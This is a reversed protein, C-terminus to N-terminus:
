WNWGKYPKKINSVVDIAEWAEDYFIHISERSMKELVDAACEPSFDSGLCRKLFYKFYNIKDSNRRYFSSKEQIEFSPESDLIIQWCEDFQNEKSLELYVDKLSSVIKASEMQDKEQFAVKLSPGREWDSTSVPSQNWNRIWYLEKLYETKGGALFILLSLADTSIMESKGVESLYHLFIESRCLSNTLFAPMKSREWSSHRQIRELVSDANNRFGLSAKYPFSGALRPGYRWVGLSVGGVSAYDSNQNLFDVMLSLSSPLYLEDDSILVSYKTAISKAALIHRKYISESTHFYKCHNFREINPIPKTSQDLVLTNIGYREWFPLTKDLCHQRERSFIVVTLDLLNNQTSNSSDRLM